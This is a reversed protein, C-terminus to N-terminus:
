GQEEVGRRALGVADALYGRGENEWVDTADLRDHLAQIARAIKMREDNRVAAEFTVTDGCRNCLLMANVDRLSTCVTMLALEQHSDACQNEPMIPM